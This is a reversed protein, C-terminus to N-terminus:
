AFIMSAIDSFLEGFEKTTMWEGNKEGVGPVLTNGQKSTWENIYKFLSQVKIYDAKIIAHIEGTEKVVPKPGVPPAWNGAYKPM